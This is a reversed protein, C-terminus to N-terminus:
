SPYKELMRRPDGPTLAVFFEDGVRIIDCCCTAVAAEDTKLKILQGNWCSTITKRKWVGRSTGNTAFDRHPSVLSAKSTLPM